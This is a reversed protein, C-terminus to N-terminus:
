EREAWVWFSQVCLAFRDLTAAHDKVWVMSDKFAGTYVGKSEVAWVSSVVAIVVVLLLLVLGKMRSARVRKIVL